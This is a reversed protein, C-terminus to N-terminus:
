GGAFAPLLTILDGDELHAPAGNLINVNKGNVLITLAQDALIEQVRVRVEERAQNRLHSVLASIDAGEGLAIKLRRGILPVLVGFIDVYVDMKM